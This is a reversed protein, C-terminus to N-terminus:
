NNGFAKEVAKNHADIYNTILVDWGALTALRRAELKNEIRKSKPLMMYYFLVNYLDDIVTDDSKDMRKLVFIGKTDKNEQKMLYKGFGAMDSTISPVGFAGAELPTYGWPEYFSPFVGMHSGQIAEYYNLDLLGDAGSLYIPYFIVKVRDDKSNALGSENLLRIIQDNNYDLDHTCIPPASTDQKLRLVKKRIEDDMSKEFLSNKNIEKEAVVKKLIRLMIREKNDKLSDEVDKFLTRNEVIEHKIGRVGAPVWFFAVINKNSNEEKLTRNLRSLAKIFVDIGKDKVEYRSAIFCILTNDLDIEYYPSFYQLLFHFIKDRFKAHKLSNEETTPFQDMDLGNPVLSDPSKGLIHTAEIGTIESVTSFVDANHASAKEMQHKSYVNQSYSEKDFDMKDLLCKGEDDKCYLDTGINSLSRGVVTAHTVFMTGVKCRRSKLYLIGAGALWEHFMAVTKKGEMRASLREIIMGATWAWVAPEDFEYPSKLSDIKFMDWLVTKIEDKRSLFPKFDLLITQPKGETLWTGYHVVIGMNELEDCVPRFDDPVVTEEFEGKVKDHFYPGILCYQDGYHKITQPIKSKIVTNIGGVKNCVEWSVEFLFDANREGKKESM